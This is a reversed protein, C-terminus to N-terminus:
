IDLPCQGYQGINDNHLSELEIGDGVFSYQDPSSPHYSILLIQLSFIEPNEIKQGDSLIRGLDIDM